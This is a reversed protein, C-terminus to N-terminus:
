QIRRRDLVDVIGKHYYRKKKMVRSPKIGIKNVMRRVWDISMGVKRAITTYDILGQSALEQEQNVTVKGRTSFRELEKRREDPLDKFQGRINPSELAYASPPVPLKSMKQRLFFMSTLSFGRYKGYNKKRGYVNLLFRPIQNLLLRNDLSNFCPLCIIVIIRFARYTEFVRNLFQNFQTIAATKAFDGAEDYIIVPLRKEYCINLKKIFDKGGMALQNEFQIPSGQIYDGLHVALTTKGQGVGGDIVICSALNNKRRKKQDNLNIALGDDFPLENDYVQKDLSM